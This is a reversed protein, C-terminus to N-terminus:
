AQRRRRNLMGLAGVLLLGLTGPEPVTAGGGFSSAPSGFGAAKGGGDDGTLSGSALGSTFIVTAGAGITLSGLTQSVTGFRLKTAVGGVTDSVAVVANGATGLASNVNTTGDTVALSAVSTLTSAAGFTTEGTGLTTLPNGGTTVVGNINLIGTGAGGISTAGTLTVTGGVTGTNVTATILAGAAGVGTGGVTIAETTIDARVDLTAGTAVTTGSAITGLATGNAAVLTGFSVTTLGTYTNPGSLNWTGTGSKLIALANAGNQSIAGSVTGTGTGRLTITRAGAATQSITFLSLTGNSTITTNDSFTTAGTVTSTSPGNFTVWQNSGALSAITLPISPAFTTNGTLPALSVHQITATLTAAGIALTSGAGGTVNLTFAGLSSAGLTLATSATNVDIASNATSLTFGRDISTTGGTYKLTGGGLVLGTAGATPFNGIHSNVTANQLNSVSLTGTYVTTVGTYTNDGSLTLTGPGSKTLATATGNNAIISDISLGGGVNTNNQIVVLDKGTTSGQLTGGTIISVNGGVTSTVLIGGAGIVNNGGALTVTNAAASNFRLTNPTIVGSLLGESSNADINFNTYNAATTGAVSSATYAFLSSYGVINGGSLTAWDSGGVTAFATGGAAHTLVNNNLFTTSTTTVGNTGDQTGTPLTFDVTGGGSARTLGALTVVLPNATVNANLAISSSGALVSLGNFRQSNTTNAKGTLSLTGGGLTLASVNSANNIINSAPATAASFDLGLTGGNVFTAGTYANAASLTWTSINSKTVKGVTNDMPGTVRNDTSTGDFVLGLSDFINFGNVTVNTTTPNLAKDSGSGENRTIGMVLRTGPAGTVNLVGRGLDSGGMTLTTNPTTVEITSNNLNRFGIDTSTSGGTYRFTGGYLELAGFYTSGVWYGGPFPYAGIASPQGANALNSVSLTAGTQVFTKGGYTNLGSLITTGTGNQSISGSGSIVSAFDTGQTLTDSRNFNLSGNNTIQSLPSLSGSTGGNGLQLTGANITTPGTYTNPATLVLTGGDMKTLGSGTIVGNVTTTRGGWVWFAGGGTGLTIGRNASLPLDVNNNQFSGGNALTINAPAFAGPVPGLKNEDTIRVYGGDILTGGTYTNTGTLSQFDVNKVWSNQVVLRINGSIGGSFTQGGSNLLNLTLVAQSAGSNIVSGVNLTPNTLYRITPSQGNLDLTANVAVPTPIAGASGVKLTGTTITTTGTYTNSGSITLTGLGTKTLGGAGIIEGSITTDGAGGITLLNGRNYVKGNVALTKAVAVNWTQAAGLALAANITNNADAFDTVSIASGATVPDFAATTTAALTSISNLTITNSGGITVANTDNFTISGLNMDAGVTVNSTAGTAGFIVNVGNGGPVVGGASTGAADSAWNSSTGASLAMVDTAGVLQNRKWYANTLAPVSGAYSAIQVATPSSLLTATYDTNNAVFYSTGGTDLGGSPSSILTTAATVVPTSSGTISIGINGGATVAANTSTILDTTDAGVLDFSLNAGGALTLSNAAYTAVAANNVMSFTGGANITLNGLAPLNAAASALLTGGNIITGGTYTNAGSLTLTGAAGKTLALLRTSGNQLVGAFTNAAANHVTLTDTGAVASASELIPAGPTAHTNLGVVTMSNGDLRVKGTSGSGFLLTAYDASGFATASGAQLTGGNITMVGTTTNPGSLVLTGGNVATTGTYSKLGSLVQTGTGTKILSLVASGNALVGSFNGSGDNQGVTLTNNTTDAYVRGNGSLSKITAGATNADNLGRGVNMTANTVTVDTNALNLAGATSFQLNARGNLSTTGVGSVVLSGTSTVTNGRIVIGNNVTSPQFTLTKGSSINFGLQLFYQSANNGTANYGNTQLISDNTVNLVTNNVIFGFNDDAVLTGGNLTITPNASWSTASVNGYANGNLALTAGANVSIASTYGAASTGTLRLTGQSITTAGTYAVGTGRLTLTGSGTKTLAGAGTVTSLTQNASSGYQFTGSTITVAVSNGSNLRGTGGIALTGGNITTTGTYTNDGSLTLTGPGAKTLATATANNAIVSSITLGGSTNNQIVVLEKDTTSGALTDGTITSDNGGVTSTVLIGGAGIINTGAALTVTNAANTNFRLTNPTIVGLLLGESSNVDINANAYNAATTGAGSTTTYTNLSSYGVINGTGNLTAWDNGGVTAFATGGAAHTLVNNNLFTTSTTTVGNTGDQTGTPLTFDVSGGGSARILAGLTLVLPNATANANLVIASSGALATLGNFRQSNTTSAKGTLSLTGGGLTLASSNLATNIINSAPATAASFDLGLTGGNVFTGGTYTNAGSLGWTGLGSKTIGLTTASGNGIIGSILNANTNSGSLTLVTAGAVAGTIGGGINLTGAGAGAGNASNNAFTYTGNAGQIILPANITEVANTATLTNLIQITGGSSLRLSNGATNGIFYNDALLNFSLGGINQTASDIVIPTGVLGWTNAIVANFTAVDANTTSATSGPAAPDGVWNEITSWNGNVVSGGDWVQSAAQASQVALLAAISGALIRSTKTTKMPNSNTNFSPTKM